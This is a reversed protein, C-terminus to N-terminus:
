RSKIHIPKLAIDKKKKKKKGRKLTGVKPNTSARKTISIKWKIM